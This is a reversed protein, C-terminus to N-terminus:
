EHPTTLPQIKARKYTAGFARKKPTVVQRIPPEFNAVTSAHYDRKPCLLARGSQCKRYNHLALTNQGHFQVALSTNRTTVAHTPARYCMM